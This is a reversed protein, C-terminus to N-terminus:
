AGFSHSRRARKCTKAEDRRAPRAHRRSSRGNREGRPQTLSNRSGASDAATAGHQTAYAIILGSPNKPPALGRSPAGGRSKKLAQEAANDRCADLIAIRVGKDKARRLEGILTEVSVLEYPAEDLSTFTADVPVVYPADGFTAGHGAFYVLAVDAGDVRGAFQGILRRLSQGDQDEGYIIDFKLAALADRIGRADNVPNDLRDAHRYAGNGVILAVRKEAHAPALACM